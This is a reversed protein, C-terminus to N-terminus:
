EGDQKRPGVAYSIRNAVYRVPAEGILALKDELMGTLLQGWAVLGNDHYISEHVNFLGDEHLWSGEFCEEFTKKDKGREEGAM